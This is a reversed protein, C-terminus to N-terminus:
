AAGVPAAKLKAVLALVAPYKVAVSELHRIIAHADDTRGAKRFDVAARYYWEIAKERDAPIGAGSEYLYALSNAADPVGANAAHEYCEIAKAMNRQVGRGDAYHMGLRYQAAAQGRQAARALYGIAKAEDRMAGPATAYLEGLTFLARRDNNEALPLLHKLAEAYQGQKLAQAGLEYRGRQPRDAQRSRYIHYGALLAPAALLMPLWFSTIFMVALAVLSLGFLCVLVAIAPTLIIANLKALRPEDQTLDVSELVLEKAWHRKTRFVLVGLAFGIAAGSLHAAFNVRRDVGSHRYHRGIDPVL